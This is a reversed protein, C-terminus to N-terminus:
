DISTEKVETGDETDENIDNISLYLVWNTESGDSVEDDSCSLETISVEYEEGDKFDYLNVDADLFNSNERAHKNILNKLERWTM